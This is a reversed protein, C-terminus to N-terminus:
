PTIWHKNHVKTKSTYVLDEPNPIWITYPKQPTATLSRARLWPNFEKLHAYSIGKTKAFHALDSITSDIVSYSFRIPKYLDEATIIFGYQQPNEFILKLALIRYFYRKSEEVLWLDLASDASQLEKESSIRHMGANYAISADIWSQYLNYAKQLYQCAALTSREIHYREDVESSVELGLEKATSPLLQWLGAAQAPSLARINLYSEITALYKFDDPINNAKLIPEIIPFYRNARKFLLLTTSHGYTFATLERDIGEHLHIPSLDISENAFVARTPVTPVPVLTMEKEQSPKSTYSINTFAISSLIPLTKGGNQPNMSALVLHLIAIVFLTSLLFKQM